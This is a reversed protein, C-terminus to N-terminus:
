LKKFLADQFRSNKSSIQKNYFQQWTSAASWQGRHLIDQVSAGRAAAGSSAASRTSHSKFANVDVGALSLTDKIWYGITASCVPKFPAKTSLFLQSDRNPYQTREIYARTTKLPCLDLGSAIVELPEPTKSGRCGKPREKFFFVMKSDTQSMLGIDLIRLENGRSVTALALLMVTKKTLLKLTAEDDAPFNRLCNLVVEVDWIVCYRPKPPNKINVGKMLQIILKHEGVRLGEIPEHYTSIASRAV